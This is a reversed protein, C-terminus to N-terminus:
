AIKLLFIKASNTYFKKESNTDPLAVCGINCESHYLIITYNFYVALGQVVSDYQEFIM